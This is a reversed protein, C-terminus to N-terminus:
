EIDQYFEFSRSWTTAGIKYADAASAADFSAALSFVSVAIAAGFKINFGM